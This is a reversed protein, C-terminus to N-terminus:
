IITYMWIIDRRVVGDVAVINKKLMAGSGLVGMNGRLMEAGYFDLDSTYIYEM